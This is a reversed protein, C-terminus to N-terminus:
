TAPYETPLERFRLNVIGVSDSEHKTQIKDLDFRAMLVRGCFVIETTNIDRDMAPTVQLTLEDQSIDNTALTVRRTIIDGNVLLFYIRDTDVHIDAYGNLRVIINTDSNSIDDIVTFDNTRLFYWFKNTRGKHDVFFDLFTYLDEMSHFQIRNSVVIPKRTANEEVTTITGKYEISNFSPDISKEIGIGYDPLFPWIQYSGLTQIDDALL